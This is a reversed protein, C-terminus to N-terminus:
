FGCYAFDSGQSIQPGKDFCSPAEFFRTVKPFGHYTPNSAVLSQVPLIQACAQFGYGFDKVVIVLGMSRCGVDLTPVIPDM